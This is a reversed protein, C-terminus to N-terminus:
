SNGYPLVGWYNMWFYAQFMLSPYFIYSSLLPLKFIKPYSIDRKGVMLILDQMTSCWTVVFTFTWVLIYFLEFLNSPIM